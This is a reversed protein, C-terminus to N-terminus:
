RGNKDRTPEANHESKCDLAEFLRVKKGSEGTNWRLEAGEPHYAVPKRSLEM